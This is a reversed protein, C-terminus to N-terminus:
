LKRVERHIDESQFRPIVMDVVVRLRVYGAGAAVFAFRARCTVTTAVDV